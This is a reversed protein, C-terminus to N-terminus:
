GSNRQFNHRTRQNGNIDKQEIQHRNEQATDLSTVVTMLVRFMKIVNVATTVSIKSQQYVNVHKNIKKKKIKESM